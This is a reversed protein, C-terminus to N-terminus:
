DIKRMKRESERLRINEAVLDFLGPEIALIDKLTIIGELEGDKMVPLRRVESNKMYVLADYIDTEPSVTVIDESTMKEGVKVKDPNEGMAILKVVLDKETLVGKFDHNDDHVLLSGVSEDRMKEAAEKVTKTEKIMVPNTTMVDFVKYGTKM